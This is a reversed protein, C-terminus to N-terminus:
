LGSLSPTQPAVQSSPEPGAAAPRDKGAADLCQAREQAQNLHSQLEQVQSHLKALQREQDEEQKRCEGIM